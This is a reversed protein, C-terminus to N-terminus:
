LAGDRRARCVGTAFLCRAACAWGTEVRIRGLLTRRQQPGLACFDGVIMLILDYRGEIDATLYDACRYRIALSEERARAEAYRLSNQSFDIGTVAAGTRALRTAYFGPGCGLDLIDSGVGIGFREVIWCVSRDIFARSRSAANVTDDLHYTLMQDATHPDTWLTEATCTSFPLPRTHLSEFFPFM